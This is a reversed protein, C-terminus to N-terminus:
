SKKYIKNILNQMLEDIKKATSELNYDTWEVDAGKGRITIEINYKNKTTRVSIYDDLAKYEESGELGKDKAAELLARPINNMEKATPGWENHLFQIIPEKARANFSEIIGIVNYKTIFNTYDYGEGKSGKLMERVDGSGRGDVQKHMQAGHRWGLFDIKILSVKDDKQFNTRYTYGSGGAATYIDDAEKVIWHKNVAEQLYKERDKNPIQNKDFVKEFVKERTVTSWNAQNADIAWLATYPIISNDIQLVKQIFDNDGKHQSVLEGIREQVAAVNRDKLKVLEELKDKGFEKLAAKFYKLADGDKCEKPLANLINSVSTGQPLKTKDLTVKGNEEKMYTKVLAVRNADSIKSNDIDVNRILADKVDKDDPFKELIKDYPLHYNRDEAVKNNIFDLVEEKTTMKDVMEAYHPVTYDGNAARELGQNYQGKGMEELKIYKALAEKQADSTTDNYLSLMEERTPRRKPNFTYSKVDSGAEDKTTTIEFYTDSIEKKAKAKDGEPMDTQDIWNLVNSLYVANELNGKDTTYIEKARAALAKYVETKEEDSLHYINDMTNNNSGFWAIAELPNNNIVEIIDEKKAKLAAAGLGLVSAVFSTDKENKYKTYLAQLRETKKTENTESQAEYLDKLFQKLLEKDKAVMGSGDLWETTAYCPNGEGDYNMKIFENDKGEIKEVTAGRQAVKSRLVEKLEVEKDDLREGAKEKNRIEKYLGAAIKHAEEDHEMVKEFNNSVKILTGVVEADRTLLLDQVFAKYEDSTRDVLDDNVLKLIVNKIVQINGNTIEVSKKLAELNGAKRTKAQEDTENDQKGKVKLTEAKYNAELKKLEELTPASLKVNHWQTGNKAKLAVQYMVEDGSTYKMYGKYKADEFNALENGDNDVPKGKGMNLGNPSVTITSTKEKTPSDQIDQLSASVTDARGAFGSSGRGVRSPAASGFAVASNNSNEKVKQVAEETLKIKIETGVRINNVDLINNIMAIQAIRDNISKANTPLGEAELTKKAIAYLTNGSKVKYLEDKFYNELAEQQYRKKMNQIANNFARKPTHGDEAVEVTYNNNQLNTKLIELENSDIKGNTNSDVGEFITASDGGLKARITAIEDGAKITVKKGNITVNLCM